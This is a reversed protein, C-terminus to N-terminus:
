SMEAQPKGEGGQGRRKRKRACTVRGFKLRLRKARKLRKALVADREEENGYTLSWIAKHLLEGLPLLVKGGKHKLECERWLTFEESHFWGEEDQYDVRVEVGVPEYRENEPFFGTCDIWKPFISNIKSAPDREIRFRLFRDHELEALHPIREERRQRKRAREAKLETQVGEEKAM